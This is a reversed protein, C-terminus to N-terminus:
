FKLTSIVPAECHQVKKWAIYQVSKLDIHTIEIKEPELMDNIKLDIIRNNGDIFLARFDEEFGVLGILKLKEFDIGIHIPNTKNSTTCATTFISNEAFNNEKASNTQIEPAQKDEYFPDAILASSFLCLFLYHFKM